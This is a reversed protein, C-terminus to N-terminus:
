TKLGVIVRFYHYSYQNRTMKLNEATAVHVLHFNLALGPLGM